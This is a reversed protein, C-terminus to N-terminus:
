FKGGQQLKGNISLVSYLYNSNRPERLMGFYRIIERGVHEAVGVFKKTFFTGLEVFLSTLKNLESKQM